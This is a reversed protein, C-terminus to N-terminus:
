VSMMNLLDNVFVLDVEKKLVNSLKVEINFVLELRSIGLKDM